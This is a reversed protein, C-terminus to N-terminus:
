LVQKILLTKLNGDCSLDNWIYDSKMKIGKYQWIIYRALVLLINLRVIFILLLTKDIYSINM